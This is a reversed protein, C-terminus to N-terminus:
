YFHEMHYLDAYMGNLKMLEDHTGREIVKGSRIVFIQDANQITTIRHAIVICTRGTKAVDLANQVLKESELDLASTAEDLLLIKPNRVLARAIAIRQKQGGSLQTGKNGLPTDYGLPLNTIFDHVNAKMAAEIIDTMSVNDFNNGYAINEAITRDFLVPEQSVLSLQSRIIHPPIATTKRRGISILGEDPDYYRLLLQLCTTKGCGSPGVLAVTTDKKIELSINRLARVEPRSPYRFSVSTFTIDGDFREATNSYAVSNKYTRPKYDLLKILKAASILASNINPAYALAQGLMWSGYVLAESVKIINKYHLDSKVVAYGGYCHSWGFSLFPMAQCLGYILGRFKSKKICALKAQYIEDCYRKLIYNEQGLSTVTRMNSIAEVAINSANEISQREAEDATKMYRSEIIIACMLFPLIITTVLAMDWSYYLSIILGIVLTAISQVLTGIRSGTAGQINSCDTALSACLAGVSNTKDDFFAINQHTITQFAQKRLRSTLEVGAKNFMYVQFFTGVGAIVGLVIFLSAYLNSQYRIDESTPLSFVGYFEGLIIAFIPLSAGHLISAICGVLIELWEPSNLEMLRFMSVRTIDEEAFDQSKELEDRIEVYSLFSKTSQFQRRVVTSLSRQAYEEESSDDDETESYDDEYEKYSNVLTYYIGKRDMLEEHSGEEVINGDKIFIIKDAHKVTALQHSVILTTRGISADELAIQVKKESPPDLASTAEDLLLIRPDNIIARAIAVRQKQGGSLQAGKEGVITDYGNPLRKIFNHCNSIIAANEIEDQTASPKGYRINEAITTAFLVPEQGVVGTQSRLWAVNLDKVKIGDILVSGESPDYLRQILHICTSKGCGSSGFLATTKGSEIKFSIGNLIKVNQRSPYEFHINKFEIDGIINLPTLGEDSMSDITSKRDIVQFINAAAARAVSLTEIHPSALGLNQAGTLVCFLIIILVVPSYDNLGNARDELILQTGYWLPVAYFSYNMFWVAGNCIGSLLGKRLSSEEAPILKNSYREVEKEEGSFAVVTRINSFVEEAVAGAKSYSKLEKETLSSQMKGFLATSIIIIPTLCLVAATLEWGYCFSCIINTIYTTMLFWFILVKEGLGERLNDLDKTMMTTFNFDNNFLDFWTMDQRLISKFFKKRIRSIQNIACTNITNVAITLLILQITAGVLASLGFAIGDNIIEKNNEEKTANTLIKGGGFWKLIVTPTSTGINSSRDILLTSVEAFAIVSYPVGLSGISGFLLSISILFKEFGTAFRFTDSSNTQQNENTEASNDNVENLDM